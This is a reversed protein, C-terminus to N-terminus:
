SVIVSDIETKEKISELLYDMLGKSKAWARISLLAYDLAEGKSGPKYSPAFDNIGVKSFGTLYKVVYKNQKCASQFTEKFLEMDGLRYSILAQNFLMMSSTDYNHANILDLAEEDRNEIAYLVILANHIQLNDNQDIELMKEYVNIADETRMLKTYEEALSRNMRLFDGFMLTETFSTIESVDQKVLTEGLSIGKKLLELSKLEDKELKSLEYYVLFADQCKELASYLLRKKEKITKTTLASELIQLAEEYPTEPNDPLDDFYSKDIIDMIADGDITENDRLYRDIAKMIKKENM